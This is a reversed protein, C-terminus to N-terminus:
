SAVGGRRPGLRPPAQDRINLTEKVVYIPKGQSEYYTRMSLEALLGFLLIQMGVLALFIGVIFFPDTYLPESWIIRKAVTWTWSAGALALVRLGLRGFFYLPKTSYAVLFRVTVLDLLVRVAKGLNYKSRGWRRPHHRVPLETIRAGVAAAWAPIFRHMEGYLRVDQLIERRYATLTCGYDHLRVGTARGIVANGIRSPLTVSWYADRRDKRWGSVVDFGEAMKDLLRGIDAPDNQLDADMAVVVDGRAHDFGAAMAATQGFNRRFSVVRVRPDAGGLQRLM